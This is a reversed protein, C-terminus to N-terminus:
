SLEYFREIARSWASNLDANQLCEGMPRDQVTFQRVKTTEILDYKDDGFYLIQAVNRNLDIGSVLMHSRTLVQRNLDVLTGVSAYDTVCVEAPWYNM